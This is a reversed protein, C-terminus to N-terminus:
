AANSCRYTGIHNTFLTIELGHTQLKFQLYRPLDLKDKYDNHSSSFQLESSFQLQRNKKFCQITAQDFTTTSTTVVVLWTCHFSPYHCSTLHLKYDNSEHTSSDTLAAQWDLSVGHARGVLFAFTSFHSICVYFLLFPLCWLNRQKARPTVKCLRAFANGIYIEKLVSKVPYKCLHAYTSVIRVLYIWFNGCNCPSQTQANQLTNTIESLCSKAWICFISWYGQSQMNLNRKWKGQKGFDLYSFSRFYSFSLFSFCSLLMNM